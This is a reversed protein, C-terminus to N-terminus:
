RTFGSSNPGSGTTPTVADTPLLINNNYPNKDGIELENSILGIITTFTLLIFLALVGWMMYNKGNEIEAQKDANLIFKSLGWFFALFALGTLIPILIELLDIVYMITDGFTTDQDVGLSFGFALVPSFFALTSLLINPYSFNLYKM